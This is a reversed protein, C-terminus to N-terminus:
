ADSSWPITVPGHELTHTLQKQIKNMRVMRDSIVPRKSSTNSLIVPISLIPAVRGFTYHRARQELTHIPQKRIKNM